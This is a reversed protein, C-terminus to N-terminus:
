RRDPRGTLRRRALLAVGAGIVAGLTNLMVDDVDAIRHAYYQAVEIAVSLVASTLVVAELRWGTALLLFFAVLAFMAVNGVCNSLDSLTTATALEMRLSAFPTTRAVRLGVISNGMVFTAAFVLVLSGLLLVRAALTTAGERDGRVWRPRVALAVTCVVLVAVCSAPLVYPNNRFPM